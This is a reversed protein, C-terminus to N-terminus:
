RGSGAMKHCPPLMRRLHLSPCVRPSPWAKLAAVPQGTLYVIDDQEGTSTKTRGLHIALSPLPPSKSRPETSLQECRLRAIEGRRRGGSAFAVM